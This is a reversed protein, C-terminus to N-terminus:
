NRKKWLPIIKEQFTHLATEITQDMDMYRYNGLRGGCILTETNLAEAQYQELLKTNQLTNVPYYPVDNTDPKSYEKCIITKPHNFPGKREPHLHKFEHIRTYPIELDSYNMVSTGQYDPYPQHEFEFALSRWELKGYKYGFLKDIPGSYIIITQPDVQDQIQFYDVSTEVSILPHNLLKDFVATYGHLPIGQHDSNQFYNEDYNTRFPLRSLLEAPLEGPDRQWQKYTYGKIFAEYLPRGMLSIAKDEFNNISLPKDRAIEKKLYEGVEFPKLNLGYFSNITELNVPMQYVKNKYTTLVQHHYTNFSTFRNIYEWVLTNDTHFIHTGFKHFEIGTEPDIASYCNGGIHDNKDIVLVKAKLVAAIREAIVSGFFGAGVVLFDLSKLNM